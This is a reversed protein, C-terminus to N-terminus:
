LPSVSMILKNTMNVRENKIKRNTSVLRGIINVKSKEASHQQREETILKKDVQSDSVPRSLSISNIWNISRLKSSTSIHPHIDLCSSREQCLSYDLNFTNKDLECLHSVCPTNICSLLEVITLQLLFSLLCVFRPSGAGLISWDFFLHDTADGPASGIAIEM